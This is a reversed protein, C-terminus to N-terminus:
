ESPAAESSANESEAEQAEAKAEVDDNKADAKKKSRYPDYAKAKKEKEAQKQAERAAKEAEIKEQALRKEEEIADMFEKFWKQTVVTAMDVDNLIVEKEPLSGHEKATKLAELCTDFNGRLGHICALNYAAMGTQISNAKEFQRIAMEYLEDTIPVGRARALDMCAVGADIAAALYSPDITMCFSFKAIANRYINISEPPQKTKAQNLLAFGWHYLAAARLADGTLIDSYEQYVERFLQDAEAGQSQRAKAAKKVASDLKSKKTFSAFISM